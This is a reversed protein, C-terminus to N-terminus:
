KFIEDVDHMFFLDSNAKWNFFKIYHQFSRLLDNELIKKNLITNLITLIFQLFAVFSKGVIKDGM